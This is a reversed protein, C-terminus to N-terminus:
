VLPELIQALKPNRGIIVGVPITWLLSLVLATFVRVSTWIAGIIVNQWDSWNLLRLMIVAEWTGWLVIFGLGSVFLWSIWQSLPSKSTPTSSANL